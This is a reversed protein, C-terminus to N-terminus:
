HTTQNLINIKIENKPFRVNRPDTTYVASTRTRIFSFVSIFTYSLSHTHRTCSRRARQKIIRFQPWWARTPRRQMEGGSQPKNINIARASRRCVTIDPSRNLDDHTTLSTVSTVRRGVTAATSLPGRIDPQRRRGAASFARSGVGSTSGIRLRSGDVWIRM